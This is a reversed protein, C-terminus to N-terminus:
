SEPQLSLKWCVTGLLLAWDVCKEERWFSLFGLLFIFCSSHGGLVAGLIQLDTLWFFYPICQLELTHPPLCPPPFTPVVSFLPTMHLQTSHRTTRKEKGAPIEPDLNSPPIVTCPKQLDCSPSSLSIPLAIKNFPFIPLLPTVSFHTVSVSSSM